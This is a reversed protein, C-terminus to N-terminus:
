AESKPSSVDCALRGKQKKMQVESQCQQPVRRMAIAEEEEEEEVGESGEVSSTLCSTTAALLDESEPRRERAAPPTPPTHATSTPCGKSRTL